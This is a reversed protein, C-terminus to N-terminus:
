SSLIFQRANGRETLHHAVDVVVVRALRAVASLFILFRETQGRNARWAPTGRCVFIDSFTGDTGPKGTERERRVVSEYAIGSPHGVRRWATYRQKHASSSHRTSRHGVREGEERDRVVILTGWGKRLARNPKKSPHGVREGEERDTGVILTGW